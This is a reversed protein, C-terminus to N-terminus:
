PRTAAAAMADYAGLFVQATQTPSLTRAIYGRPAYSGLQRWFDDFAQEMTDLTFGVGCEESFYPVSSVRLGPQAFPVQWPDVLRGEEWAFIPVNMAMAEECALGQTEHECLFAMSRAKRVEAFFLEQTHHGYELITYSLGEREIKAILRQRVAPVLADRHWRIKDYILVDTSKPQNTADALRAVDIGVPCRLMKNGCFPRYFDVFWECPQIVHKVKDQRAWRGATDPFGPDGPGFITPNPLNVQDLVSPYGALGIPYSPRATAAAFDNVRVDCGLQRLGHCLADFAVGFGTDVQKGKLKRWAARAVSRVHHYLALAAGVRAKREFGDYFLLVLPGRSGIELHSAHTETFPTAKSPTVIAM